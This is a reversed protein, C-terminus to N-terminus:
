KPCGRGFQKYIIRDLGSWFELYEDKVNPLDSVKSLFYKAYVSPKIKKNKRPVLGTADAPGLLKVVQELTTSKASTKSYAECLRQIELPERKWPYTKIREMQGSLPIEGQIERATANLDDPSTKAEAQSGLAFM